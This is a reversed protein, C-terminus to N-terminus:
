NCGIALIDEGDHLAVLVPPTLTAHAKVTNRVAALAIEKSEEVRKSSFM